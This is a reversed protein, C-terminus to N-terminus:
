IENNVGQYNTIQKEKEIEFKDWAKTSQFTAVFQPSGLVYCGYQSFEEGEPNFYYNANENLNGTVNFEELQERTKYSPLKNTIFKEFASKFFKCEEMTNMRSQLEIFIATNSLPTAHVVIGDIKYPLEETAKIKFASSYTSFAYNNNRYVEFTKPVVENLKVGYLETNYDNELNADKLSTAFSTGSLIVCFIASLAYTKKNKVIRKKKYYCM